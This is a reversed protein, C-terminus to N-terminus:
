EGWGDNEISTRKERLHEPRHDSREGMDITRPDMAMPKETLAALAKISPVANGAAIWTKVRSLMKSVQGQAAPRNFTRSLEKAIKKQTLGTQSAWHARYDDSSLEAIPATPDGTKLLAEQPEVATVSATHSECSEALAACITAWRRNEAQWQERGGFPLGPL